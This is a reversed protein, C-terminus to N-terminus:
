SDRIIVSQCTIYYITCVYMRLKESTIVTCTTPYITVRTRDCSIPAAVLLMLTSSEKALVRLLATCVLVLSILIASYM